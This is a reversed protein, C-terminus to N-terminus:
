SGDDNWGRSQNLKQNGTRSSAENVGSRAISGGAGMSENKGESRESDFKSTLYYPEYQQGIGGEFPKRNAPSTFHTEVNPDANTLVDKGEIYDTGQKIRGQLGRKIYTQMAIVVGVVLGLVIVYEATSQAKRLKSVSM